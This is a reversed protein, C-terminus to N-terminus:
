EGVRQLADDIIRRSLYMGAVLLDEIVSRAQPIYGKEKAYLVIGITGRVPVAHAGACKRGLFDDIVAVAGPTSLALAVVSSEGLGLGWEMVSAPLPGVPVVNLWNCTRITRATPDDDGRVLIESAVPKPILLRRAIRALLDVHGSRSLLILPSANIIACEDV